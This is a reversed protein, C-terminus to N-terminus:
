GEKISKQRFLTWELLISLFDNEIHKNQLGYKDYRVLRKRGSSDNKEILM